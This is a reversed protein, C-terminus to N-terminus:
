VVTAGLECILVSLCQCIFHSAWTVWCYAFSGTNSGWCGPEWCRQGKEVMMIEQVLWKAKRVVRVQLIFSPFLDSLRTWDKRSSWGWDQIDAIQINKLFFTNISIVKEKGRICSCGKLSTFDWVIDTKENNRKYCTLSCITKIQQKGMGWGLPHTEFFRLIVAFGDEHPPQFCQSQHLINPTIGPGTVAVIIPKPALDVQTQFGARGSSLWTVKSLKRVRRNRIKYFSISTIKRPAQHLLYCYHHRARPQHCHCPWQQYSWM